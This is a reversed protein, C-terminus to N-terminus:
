TKSGFFSFCINCSGMQLQPQRKVPFSRGRTSLSAFVVKVLWVFGGEQPESTLTSGGLSLYFGPLPSSSALTFKAKSLTLFQLNSIFRYKPFM